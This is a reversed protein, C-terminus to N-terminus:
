LFANWKWKWKWARRKWWGYISVYHFYACSRLIIGYCIKMKRKMKMKLTCLTIHVCIQWLRCNWYRIRIIDSKVTNTIAIDILNRINNDVYWRAYIADVCSGDNEYGPKDGGWIAIIDTIGTDPNEVIAPSLIVVSANDMTIINPMM